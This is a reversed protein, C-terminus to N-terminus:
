KNNLVNKRSSCNHVFTGVFLVVITVRFGFTDIRDVRISTFARCIGAVDRWIQGEGSSHAM